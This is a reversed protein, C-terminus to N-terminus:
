QDKKIKYRKQFLKFIIIELLKEKFVKKFQIIYNLNNLDNLDITVNKSHKKCIKSQM